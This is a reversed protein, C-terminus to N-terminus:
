YASSGKSSRGELVKSLILGYEGVTDDGGIANVNKLEEDTTMIVQLLTQGILCSLLELKDEDSM